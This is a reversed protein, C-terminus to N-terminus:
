TSYLRLRVFPNIAFTPYVPKPFGPFFVASRFHAKTIQVRVAFEMIALPMVDLQMLLGSLHFSGVKKGSLRKKLKRESPRGCI